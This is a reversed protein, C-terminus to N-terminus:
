KGLARQVEQLQQEIEDRDRQKSALKRQAKALKEPHDIEAKARNVKDEAAKIDAQKKALKAQLKDQRHQLEAAISKDTCHTTTENLAKELGAVEWKNQQQKAIAIKEKIAQARGQCTEMAMASGAFVVSLSCVVIASSLLKQGIM